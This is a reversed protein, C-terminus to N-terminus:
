APTNEIKTKSSKSNKSEKQAPNLIAAVKSKLRELDFNAFDNSHLKFLIESLADRNKQYVRKLREAEKEKEAKEAKKELVALEAIQRKLEDMKKQIETIKM